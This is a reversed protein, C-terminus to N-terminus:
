FLSKKKQNKAQMMGFHPFTQINMQGILVWKLVVQRGHVKM